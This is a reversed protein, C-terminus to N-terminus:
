AEPDGDCAGGAIDAALHEGNEGLAAKGNGLDIARAEGLEIPRSTENPSRTRLHLASSFKSKESTSMQRIDAPPATDFSHDGRMPACPQTTISLEETQRM